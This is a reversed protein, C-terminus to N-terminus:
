PKEVSERERRYGALRVLCAGLCASVGAAFVIVPWNLFLRYSNRNSEAVFKEERGVPSAIPPHTAHFEDYFHEDDLSAGARIREAEYDQYAQQYLRGYALEVDFRPRLEEVEAPPLQKEILRQRRRCHEAFGRQIDADPWARDALGAAREYACWAIYRQGVRLM